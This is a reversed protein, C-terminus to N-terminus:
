REVVCYDQDELTLEQQPHPTHTVQKYFVVLTIPTTMIILVSYNHSYM